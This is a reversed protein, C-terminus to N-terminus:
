KSRRGLGYFVTDLTGVLGRRVFRFGLKELVRISAVNPVDTSARVARLDLTEFCYEIVAQAIEPAYGQGWFQEDVGYLLELEPPDRFLWLGTFGILTQSATSWAGWIGYGHQDFLRESREIVDATQAFPIVEGDWLYRRVGPSSWLRHLDSADAARLPRLVCRATTLQISVHPVNSTPLQFFEPGLSGSV